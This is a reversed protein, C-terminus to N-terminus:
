ILCFSLLFFFSTLEISSPGKMHAGCRKMRDEIDQFRQLNEENRYFSEIISEKADKLNEHQIKMREVENGLLALQLRM